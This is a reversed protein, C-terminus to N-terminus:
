SKVCEESWGDRGGSNTFRVRPRVLPSGPYLDGTCAASSASVALLGSEDRQRYDRDCGIGFEEFELQTPFQFVETYEKAAM